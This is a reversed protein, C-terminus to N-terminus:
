MGDPLKRGPWAAMGDAQERIHYAMNKGAAGPVAAEVLDAYARIAIPSLIDSARLVFCPEDAPALPRKELTVNGYKKDKPM